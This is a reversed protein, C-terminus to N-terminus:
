DIDIIPTPKFDPSWKGDRSILDITGDSYSRPPYNKQPTAKLEGAKTDELLYGLPNPYIRTQGKFVCRILTNKDIDSGNNVCLLQKFAVSTPRDIQYCHSMGAGRSGSRVGAQYSDECNLFELSVLAQGVDQANPLQDSKANAPIGLLFAILSSALALRTVATAM